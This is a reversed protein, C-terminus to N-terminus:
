HATERSCEGQLLARYAALVGWTLGAGSMGISIFNGSMLFEVLAMIMWVGGLLGLQRATDDASAWLLRANKMVAAPLWLYFVGFGVLGLQALTSIYGLHGWADGIASYSTNGVLPAYYVLGQGVLPSHFWAEFDLVFSAQRDGFALTNGQFLQGVSLLRKMLETIMNSSLLSLFVVAVVGLGLVTLGHSDTRVKASRTRHQRFVIWTLPIAMVAAIWLSRTLSIAISVLGMLVSLSVLLRKRRTDMWPTGRAIAAVVWASSAGGLYQIDRISDLSHGKLLLVSSGLVHTGAGVLVGLMLTWLLLSLTQRDRCGNRGVFYYLPLTLGWRLMRIIEYMNGPIKIVSLLFGFLLVSVLGVVILPVRAQQRRRYGTALVAMLALLLLLDHANLVSGFPFRTFTLRAMSLATELGISLLMAWIPRWVLLFGGVMTIMWLLWVGYGQTEIL